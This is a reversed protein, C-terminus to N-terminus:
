GLPFTITNMGDKCIGMEKLDVKGGGKGGEFVVPSKM